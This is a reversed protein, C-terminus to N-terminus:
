NKVRVRTLENIYKEVIAHGSGLYNQTLKEINETNFPDDLDWGCVVDMLLDADERSDMSDMFEKFEERTRHKFTFEIDVARGGPVPISVAAKFTPSPNLSFKPKAM